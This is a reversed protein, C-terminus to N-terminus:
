NNTNKVLYESLRRWLATSEGDGAIWERLNDEAVSPWQADFSNPVRLRGDHLLADMTGLPDNTGYGSDIDTVSFASALCLTQQCEDTLLFSLFSRCLAQQDAADPRNVISLSLLQDSFPADGPSLRWDPGRGQDSLAQLRRIERQTVITAAADGNIFSRWSLDDPRFGEPLRCPRVNVHEPPPPATPGPAATGSLGLDLESQSEQPAPSGDNESPSPVPRGSCLALLAADWRRWSEPVPAALTLGSERWDDPIGDTLAANWAWMYGGMAVPVAYTTDGLSGSKALSLRLGDPRRLELLGEPSALLGPPFLVMDPPLIGSDNMSAIAGADVARPQVYVGPHSREFRAICHNLWPSLSGAGCPWGEFVWLRLVGSWGAYKEAVLPRTDVPLIRNACFLLPVILALGLACLASRHKKM